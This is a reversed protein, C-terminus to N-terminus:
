RIGGFESLPLARFLVKGIVTRADVEGFYTSDLSSARNDGLVFIHGESVTLKEMTFHRADKSASTYEESLAEGDVFVVGGRIEVTQGGTAIVRKIIAENEELSTARKATEADVQIVVVDGSKPVYFLNSIVLRERDLLTPNMSGGIVVTQRFLFTTVLLLLALVILVLEAVDFIDHPLRKRKAVARAEIERDIEEYSIQNNDM